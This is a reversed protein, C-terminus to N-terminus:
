KEERPDGSPQAFPKYNAGEIVSWSPFGNEAIWKRILERVRENLDAWQEKTAGWYGGWDDEHPCEEPNLEAQEYFVRELNILNEPKLPVGLGVWCGEYGDEALTAKADEIADAETEFVGIWREHDVSTAWFFKSM